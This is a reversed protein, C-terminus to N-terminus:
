AQIEECQTLYLLKRHPLAESSKDQHYVVKQPLFSQAATGSGPISVGGQERSPCGRDICPARHMKVEGSRTHPKQGAFLQLSASLAWATKGHARPPAVM